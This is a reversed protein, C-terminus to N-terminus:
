PNVLNSAAEVTEAVAAGPKEGGFAGAIGNFILEAIGGKIAGTISKPRGGANGWLRKVVYDQLLANFRKDALFDQLVDFARRYIWREIVWPGLVVLIVAVVLSDVAMGAFFSLWDVM